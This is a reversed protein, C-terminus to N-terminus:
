THKYSYTIYQTEVRSRIFVVLYKCFTKFMSQLDRYAKTLDTGKNDVYKSVLIKLRM